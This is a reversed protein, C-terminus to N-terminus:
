IKRSRSALLLCTLWFRQAMQEGRISLIASARDFVSSSGSYVDREHQVITRYETVSLFVDVAWLKKRAPFDKRSLV